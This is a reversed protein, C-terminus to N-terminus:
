SEGASLPRRNGHRRPFYDARIEVREGTQTNGLTVSRVRDGDVDAAVPEHHLLIQIRGSAVHPALMNVLVTTRSARSAASGASGATAPISCCTTVLPTQSRAITAIGSVCTTVFRETRHPSRNCVMM